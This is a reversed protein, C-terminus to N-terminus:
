MLSHENEATNLVSPTTIEKPKANSSADYEYQEDSPACNGEKLKLILYTKATGKSQCVKSLSYCWTDRYRNLILEGSNSLKRLKAWTKM